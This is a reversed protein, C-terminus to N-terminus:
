RFLNLIFNWFRAALSTGASAAVNSNENETTTAASSAVSGVVIESGNSIEPQAASGARNRADILAQRFAGITKLESANLSLPQACAIQNIKKTTTIYVVGSTKTGGWPILIENAYKTQFARVAAETQADYTGTVSVNMKEVNKLFAQLKSVESQINNVGRKLMPVTILPCSDAYIVLEGVAASSSNSSRRSGSSGSTNNSSNGTNGGNNSDNPTSTDAANVGNGETTLSSGSGTNGSAANAGNGETPLATSAADVGNGDTTLNSEVQTNGTAANSGSGETELTQAVSFAPAILVTGVIAFAFVRTIYSKNM